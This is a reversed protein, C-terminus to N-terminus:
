DGKCWSVLYRRLTCYYLYRQLTCYYLMPIEPSYLLLAYSYLLRRGQRPPHRWSPSRRRLRASLPKLLSPRRMCMTAEPIQQHVRHSHRLQVTPTRPAASGDRCGRHLLTSIALGHPRPFKSCISSPHNKKTEKSM